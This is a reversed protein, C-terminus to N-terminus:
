EEMTTPTLLADIPGGEKIYDIVVDRILIEEIQVSKATGILLERRPPEVVFSNTAVTYLRDPDLATGTATLRESLKGGIDKGLIQVIALQNGFPHINWIHRATIKGQFLRNRVGGKNYFGIDSGSRTALIHEVLVYMEEESWNRETHGITVDVLESVRDEWKAVIAAVKPDPPPLQAAPM